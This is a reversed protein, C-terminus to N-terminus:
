AQPRITLYYKPLSTDRDIRNALANFAKKAMRVGKQYATKVLKIVPSIGKWTMTKAWELTIETTDLLTASWHNELIGWCREIPNYKSYYPPYYALVIELNNKDAFEIMRKMFQTRHSSNQPGNDLNIVLQKIHRYQEKNGDWWLELCDVIFDSTEFSVGFLVTLLGTMMNLIGFPALKDKLGMDHDSAQVAKKCRSTGGRSSDCLDVKAKTDISIRLSDASLDSAKNIDILSDFIADTESIKKLPKAKQVRRLCYDLRNLIAGITKECPLDKDQWGKETMLAIRMAKATIRTYKFLTQFKPDTQSQPEALAIIDVKLQPKKVETKQNGRAKFNDVCVIGTRLENLGLAITKRDWGLAQVALYAKSDFYDITVQAEFARRKVGTLKKAANKFTAINQKSLTPM